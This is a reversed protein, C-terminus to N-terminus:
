HGSFLSDIRLQYRCPGPPASIGGTSGDSRAEKSV